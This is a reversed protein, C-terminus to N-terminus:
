NSSYSGEQFARTLLSLFLVLGLASATLLTRRKQRWLNRWALKILM